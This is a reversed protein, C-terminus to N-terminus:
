KTTLGIYVYEIAGTIAEMLVAIWIPSTVIILTAISTMSTETSILLTIAVTERIYENSASKDVNNM